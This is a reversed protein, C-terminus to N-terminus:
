QSNESEHTEVDSINLYETIVQYIYISSAGTIRCIEVVSAGSRWYGIIAAIEHREKVVSTM